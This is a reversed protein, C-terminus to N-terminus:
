LHKLLDELKPPFTLKRIESIADLFEYFKIDKSIIQYYTKYQVPQSLTMMTFITNLLPYENKDYFQIAWHTFAQALGEHLNYDDINAYRNNNNNWRNNNKDLLWHSAWHGMEHWLVIKFLANYIEEPKKKPFHKVRFLESYDFITNNFIIIKGEKEVGNPRTYLGLIDFINEDDLSISKRKYDLEYVGFHKHDPGFNSTAPDDQLSAQYAFRFFFLKDYIAPEFKFYPNHKTILDTFYLGDLIFDKEM